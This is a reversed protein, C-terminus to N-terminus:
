KNRTRGALYLAALAIELTLCTGFTAGGVTLVQMADGHLVVTILAAIGAILAAVALGCLAAILWWVLARVQETQQGNGSGGTEGASGGPSSPGAVPGSSAAAPSGRQQPTSTGTM